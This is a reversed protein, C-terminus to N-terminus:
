KGLFENLQKQAEAIIDQYGAKNLEELMKPVAEDPNISGTIIAPQYKAQINSCAAIQNQVPQTNFSFGLAPSAFANENHKQLDTWKTAPAPDVVYMNFFTAQSYAPVSYSDTLIKINNDGTKEYHVGEIGFALLNRATSDTNFLEILKVAEEVHKSGASIVQFSGQITGTSYAPGFFMHSVVPTRGVSWDADAHPFGQAGGIPKNKETIETVTAADPNILGENFWKHLTRWNNMTQEDEWPSVVTATQDDYKIGVHPNGLFEDFGNLASFSGNIGELGHILLPYKTPNDAKIQKLAPELEELTNINEYDIGLRDVLEKDWVWYQSMASDKYTPIGFVQNNVTMGAWLEDPVFEDLAPAVSPVVEKLDAFYGKNALDLYNNISAGFAIDYNEGSQIVKSLKEGYEGWSAYKLEVTVNIKEKTYKNIEENVLKLDKPENGITWWVLNVTEEKAPKSEEKKPEEKKEEAKPTEATETKTETSTQPSGSSCGVMTGLSMMATLMLALGKMRKNM